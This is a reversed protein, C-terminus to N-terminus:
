LLAHMPACALDEVARQLTPLPCAKARVSTGNSPPLIGLRYDPDINERRVIEEVVTQDKKEHFVWIIAVTEVSPCYATILEGCRNCGRQAHGNIM